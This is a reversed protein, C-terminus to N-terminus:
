HATNVLTLQGQHVNGMTPVLAVTHGAQRWLSLQERLALPTTVVLM